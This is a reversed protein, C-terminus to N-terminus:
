CPVRFADLTLHKLMANFGLANAQPCFAAPALSYEVEFVAKKAAVFPRLLDCEQYQFCQENLAWDFYPLLTTIQDLDNKLGVSLGRLHAQAAIFTNFRLQDTTSLPFGTDNVYGDVNDPDVGDFGKQKCIDFRHEIIPALIAIQRIDLWRENPYGALYKGLVSTPFTSADSRFAEWSGVDIYCIVKRGQAHLAAVETATHDLGDIDFLTAAVQLNLPASDLQLQWTTHPAPVWISAPPPSSQSTGSTASPDSAATGPPNETSPPPKSNLSSGGCGACIMALLTLGWLFRHCM